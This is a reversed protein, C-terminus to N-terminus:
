RPYKNYLKYYDKAACLHEFAEDETCFMKSSYKDGKISCQSYYKGTSQSFYVGKYSCYREREVGKKPIIGSKLFSSLHKKYTIEAEKQEKFTGLHYIEQKITLTAVFKGRFLTIGVPLTKGSNEVKHTCNQRGNCWELNSVHNNSKISDKHNVQDYELPNELFAEAVLRHVKKYKKFDQNTLMVQSYGVVNAPILIKGKFPLKRGLRDIVVRDLSKVQGLNSVEYLGEFDKIPRWEEIEM